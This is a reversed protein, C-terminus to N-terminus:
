RGKWKRRELLYLGSAFALPLFAQPHFDYWNVGQTAPHLLYAISLVFAIRESNLVRRGLLYLPVATLAIAWTQLVTLTFLSPVLAYPILLLLLIPSFHAGFISGSPNAPLDATYYLFRGNFVTTYISQHYVGLDYGFGSLAYVRFITLVSFVIGYVSTAVLVSKTWRSSRSWLTWVPRLIRVPAHLIRMARAFTHKGGKSRALTARGITSRYELKQGSQVM